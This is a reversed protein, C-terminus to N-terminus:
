RCSFNEFCIFLYNFLFDAADVPYPSRIFCTSFKEGVFGSTQFGDHKMM